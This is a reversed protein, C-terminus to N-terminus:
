TVAPLWCSYLWNWLSRLVIRYQQLRDKKQVIGDADIDGCPMRSRYCRSLWDRYEVKLSQQKALLDHIDVRGNQNFDPKCAFPEPYPVTVTLIATAPASISDSVTVSIAYEGGAQDGSPTWALMGSWTGSEFSNGLAQLLISRDEGDVRGDSSFDAKPSYRADDRRSGYAHRFLRLDERDVQGNDDLDGLLVEELVAGIDSLEAGDALGVSYSLADGDPDYARIYVMLRTEVDVTPDPPLFFAPVSNPPVFELAGIDPDGHLPNGDFDRDLGVDFGADVLPADAQPRFDGLEPDAFRPPLAITGTVQVDPNNFYSELDAYDDGLYHIFGPGEPGILNNSFVTGDLQTGSDIRIQVDESDLNRFGWFVNNRVEAAKLSEKVFLNGMWRVDGVGGYCVNNFVRNSGIGEPSGDRLYLNATISVDTEAAATGNEYVLNYYVENAEGEVVLGSKTNALIHTYRIVNHNSRYLVLGGHNGSALNLNNHHIRNSEIVNDATNLGLGIGEGDDSDEGQFGNYSSENGAIRNSRAAGYFVLGSGGNYTFRNDTFRGYDARAYVGVRYNFNVRCQAISVYHANDTIAIGGVSNFTPADDPWGEVALGEVAVHPHDIYIGCQGQEGNEPVSIEMALGASVPDGNEWQLYICGDEPIYTWQGPELTEQPSGSGPERYVAAQWQRGNKLLLRRPLYGTGIKYIGGEGREWDIQLRVDDLWTAVGDGTTNGSLFYLQYKGSYRDTSFSISRERWTEDVTGALPAARWCDSSSWTQLDEQLYRTGNLRHRLAFAGDAIRSKAKWRLTVRANAPLYVDAFLHAKSGSKILRAAARDADPTDSVAEVRGGAASFHLFEDAQGDDIEGRFEAFDFNRIANRDPTIPVTGAIRPLPGEGYASYRIPADAAGPSSVTLQDRWTDGRRFLVRDGPQLPCRELRTLSRWASEPSRGDNIDSGDASVFYDSPANGSAGSEPFLFAVGVQLLFFFIAFFTQPRPMSKM